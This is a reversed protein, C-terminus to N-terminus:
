PYYPQTVNAWIPYCKKVSWCWNMIVLLWYTNLNSNELGVNAPLLGYDVQGKVADQMMETISVQTELKSVEAETESKRQLTLGADAEIYALQNDEKFTQKGSEISDLEQTLYVFRDDIFDLTRQSVLQRDLIGDENFKDIVTNIIAESREFSEGSLSIALIDSGKEAPEVQLANSLSLITQHTDKFSVSYVFDNKIKEFDTTLKIKFPLEDKTQESQYSINYNLKDDEEIYFGDKKLEILFQGKLNTSDLSFKRSVAFPVNWMQTTKFDGVQYFSVDLSLEEVVKSLLRYSKLVQIENELNVQSGGLFLSSQDISLLNEENEKLVKIKAQSDYIIPAYRLYFKAFLLSVALGILFWYWYKFYKFFVEKLM